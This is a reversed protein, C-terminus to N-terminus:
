IVDYVAGAIEDHIERVVKSTEATAPISDLVAFPIAAIAEHGARTIAAPADILAGATDSIDVVQRRLALFRDREAVWARRREVDFRLQTVARQQRHVDLAAFVTLSLCALGLLLSILSM